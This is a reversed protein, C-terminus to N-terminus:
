GPTRRGHSASGSRASRARGRAPRRGRRRARQHQDAALRCPCSSAAAAPAPRSRRCPARSAAPRRRPTARAPAGARRAARADGVCPGPAPRSRARRRRRRSRAPAGRRRAHHVRHLRQVSGVQEAAGPLTAWTRSAASRSSRSALRACCRRRAPRGRSWPPARRRAARARAGPRRRAATRPRGSGREAISRATLFRNPEVLSIPTKSIVPTPRRAPPRDTPATRPPRRAPGPETSSGAMSPVRGISTSTCDSTASALQRHRAPLRRTRGCGARSSRQGHQAAVGADRQAAAVHEDVDGTTDADVLGRGVQGDRHRDDRREAACAGSCRSPTSRRAPASRGAAPPPGSRRGGPRPACAPRRGGHHRRRARGPAAPMASRSAAVM